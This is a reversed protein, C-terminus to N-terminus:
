DISLGKCSGEEDILPRRALIPDRKVMCVSMWIMESNCHHISPHKVGVFFSYFVTVEIVHTIAPLREPISSIRLELRRYRVIIHIKM